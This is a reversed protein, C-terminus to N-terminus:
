KWCTSVDGDANRVGTSALTLTGCSDKAMPGTPAAQLTFGTTSASSVSINYSITGSGSAPSTKLGTPLDPATNNGAATEYTNNAVYYRQMYQMAELLAKQADARRGRAIYSSYSPYAIAALIGVIAVVVMLEILTFGQQPRSTPASM